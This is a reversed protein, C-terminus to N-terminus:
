SSVKALIQSRCSCIPENGLLIVGHPQQQRQKENKVKFELLQLWFFLYILILISCGLDKEEPNAKSAASGVIHSNM